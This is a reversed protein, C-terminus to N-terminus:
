SNKECMINFNAIKKNHNQPTDKWKQVAAAAALAVTMTTNEYCKNKEEMPYYQFSTAVHGLDGKLHCVFFSSFTM